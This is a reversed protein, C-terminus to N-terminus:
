NSEPNPRPGVKMGQARATIEVSSLLGEFYKQISEDEAYEQFIKLYLTVSQADESRLAGILGLPEGGAKVLESIDALMAAREARAQVFKTEKEFGVVMSLIWFDNLHKEAIMEDILDDIARM